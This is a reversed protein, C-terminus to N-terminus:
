TSLCVSEDCVGPDFFSYSGCDWLQLRRALARVYQVALVDIYAVRGRSDVERLARFLAHSDAGCLGAGGWRTL